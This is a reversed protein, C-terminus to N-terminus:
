PAIQLTLSTVSTKGGREKDGGGEIKPSMGSM